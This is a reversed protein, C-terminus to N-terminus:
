NRVPVLIQLFNPDKEDKLAVPKLSDLFELLINDNESSKLLSLLFHTNLLISTTEKVSGKCTINEKSNGFEISNFSIEIIESSFTLKVISKKELSSIVLGRELAEIMNKKSFNVKNEKPLAIIRSVNPYEGEIIKSAIITNNAKFIVNNESLYMKLNTDFDIMEILLEILSVDLVIKFDELNSEFKYYALKYSDTGIIELTKDKSISNFCIGSMINIKEKNNNVTHKIKSISKKFVTPLISLEKWGSYSFNIDPYKEEDMININSDFSSTKVKIVSNDVKELTIMENKLKSLIAFFPKTKVLIRGKDLINVDESKEIISHVSIIGNSATFKIEKDNVEILTGLFSPSSFINESISNCLKLANIIKNKSIIIKM